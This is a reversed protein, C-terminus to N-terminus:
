QYRRRYRPARYRRRKKVTNKRPVVRRVAPKSTPKITPKPRITPKPKLPAPVVIVPKATPKATPAVTPQPRPTATPIATPVATATPFPTPVATPTPVPASEASVPLIQPDIFLQSRARLWLGDDVNPANLWAPGDTLILKRKQISATFVPLARPETHADEAVQANGGEGFMEGGSRQDAAPFIVGLVDVNALSPETQFCTKVIRAATQAVLKREDARGPVVLFQVGVVRFPSSGITVQAVEIEVLQHALKSRKLAAGLRAEIKPQRGYRGDLPLGPTANHEATKQASQAGQAVGEGEIQTTEATLPAAQARGELRMSDVQATNIKPTGGTTGSRPARVVELLANGLLLAIAFGSFAAQHRRRWVLKVDRSHIILPLRWLALALATIAGGSLWGVGVDVPYNSGCFVRAFGFLATAAWAILGLRPAFAWLITAAGAALMVEFCPYSNDNPEVILANVWHTVFPRPSFVDTHWASQALAIIAWWFAFCGVLSSLAAGALVRRSLRPRPALLLAWAVGTWLLPVACVVFFRMAEDLWAIRGAWGNILYFLAM